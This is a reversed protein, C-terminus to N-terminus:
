MKQIHKLDNEMTMNLTDVSTLFPYARSPNRKIVEIHVGVRIGDDASNESSLTLFLLRSTERKGCKICVNLKTKAAKWSSM